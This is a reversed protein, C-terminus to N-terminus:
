CRAAFLSEMPILSLPFPHAFCCMFVEFTIWPKELNCASQGPDDPLAPKTNGSPCPHFLRLSSCSVSPVIVSLEM